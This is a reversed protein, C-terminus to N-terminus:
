LTASLSVSFAGVPLVGSSDFASVGLECSQEGILVPTPDVPSTPFYLRILPYKWLTVLFSIQTAGPGANSYNGSANLTIVNGSAFAPGAALGYLAAVQADSYFAFGGVATGPISGVFSTIPVGNVMVVLEDYNVFIPISLDTVAIYAAGSLHWSPNDCTLGPETDDNDCCPRCPNFKYPM